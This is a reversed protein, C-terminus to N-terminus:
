ILLQGTPNESHHHYYLVDFLYSGKPRAELTEHPYLIHIDTLIPKSCHIPCVM